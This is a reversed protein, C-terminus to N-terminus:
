RYDFYGDIQGSNATWNHNRFRAQVTTGAKHSQPYFLTYMLDVHEVVAGLGYKDDSLAKVTFTVAENQKTWLTVNATNGDYNKQGQSLYEYKQFAPVKKSINIVNADATNMFFISGVITFISFVLLRNMKRKM